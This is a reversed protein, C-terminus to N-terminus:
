RNGAKRPSDGNNIKGDKLILIKNKEVLEGNEYLEFNFWGSKMFYMKELILYEERLKTLEFIKKGKEDFFLARYNKIVADPLHIVVLQSNNTFIRKSPYSIEKKGPIIVTGPRIGSSDLLPDAQWPFRKLTLAVSDEPNQPLPPLKVPRKPQTIVYTGGEFGVFIRYYMKNYPAQNDSFGNEVINPNLVSGITTYNKLSDFSRQISLSAIPLSYNNKWSVIIKGDADVVKFVPLTDQAFASRGGILLFAALLLKM